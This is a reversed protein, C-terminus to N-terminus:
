DYFVDLTYFRATLLEAVSFQNPYFKQPFPIVSASHPHIIINGYKISDFVSVSRVAAVYVLRINQCKIERKIGLEVIGSGLGVILLSLM